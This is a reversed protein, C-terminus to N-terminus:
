RQGAPVVDDVSHAPDADHPHNGPMAAHPRLWSLTAKPCPSARHGLLPRPARAHGERARRLGRTPLTCVTIVPGHPDKRSRTRLGPLKQTPRGGRGGLVNRTRRPSAAREGSEELSVRDAPAPDLSRAHWVVARREKRTSSLFPPPTPLGSRWRGLELLSRVGQM